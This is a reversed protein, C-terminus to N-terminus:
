GVAGGGMAGGRVAGGGVAIGRVAGGGVAGGRVTGGGLASKKSCRRGSCRERTTVQRERQSIEGHANGLQSSLGAASIALEASTRPFYLPALRLYAEYDAPSPLALLVADFAAPEHELFRRLTRLACHAGEEVPYSKRVTHLVSFAITRAKSEHCLQLASRYCWHLASEAAAAYRAQYRPGIAHVAHKTHLGHGATMRSEGTRTGAHTSAERALGAGGREFVEGTEGSRDSLAENNGVVLVEVELDVARMQTFVVRSNMAQDVVFPPTRDPWYAPEEYSTGHPLSRQWSTFAQTM